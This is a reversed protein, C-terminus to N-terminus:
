GEGLLAVAKELFHALYNHEYMWSLLKSDRTSDLIMQGVIGIDLLMILTYITWIIIATELVGFVIGLLKDGFSVVPLKSIVKASFFVVNLLHKIIGVLCLLLVMAIVNFISGDFYSKIGYGLLSVVICTIILSVFSILSRVMGKKYGDAVAAALVIAMIILVININMPIEM